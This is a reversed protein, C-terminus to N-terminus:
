GGVVDFTFDDVQVLGFSVTWLRDHPVHTPTPGSLEELVVVLNLDGAILRLPKTRGYLALMTDRDAKSRLLGAVDGEYGRITDVIRVPDRRGRLFHTTGSSGIALDPGQSGAIRVVTDDAEDVLWVGGGELQVTLAATANADSNQFAGASNVVAEIEYTSSVRPTAGWWKMSYTTGSVFVDTPDIRSLVEVGDVKLAFFDPQAARTWTLLVGPGNAPTQVATLTLVQTPAGSRSYTFDKTAQVYDLDTAYSDRDLNDWVFLVARYFKGSVIKGEPITHSTAASTIEGSNYVTRMVGPAGAFSLEYVDLRYREQAGGAPPTFTWAIPPSLDDVTSGSPSVISLSGKAKRTFSVPDSWASVVDADDWVRVRWYRVDNVNITLPSIALEAGGATKTTDALTSAFDAADDVQVQYSTQASGTDPDRFVWRLTPLAISVARGGQPGIPTPADPPLSYTLELAPRVSAKVAEASHLARNVDTDLTIKFGFFASGAAVDALMAAVNLEVLQDAIASAVTLTAQNTASASPRNNWNLKRESWKQTIRQATVVQSSAWPKATYLRLKATLVTAGLISAPLAFHVFAERNNTGAGGNLSLRVSDGLETGPRAQDAWSDVATRIVV